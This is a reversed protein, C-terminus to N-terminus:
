HEFPFGQDNWKSFGGSLNYVNKFGLKKMLKLTKKGRAGHQCYVLYTKGPDYKLLKDQFDGAYFNIHIASTLHGDAFEKPTRVDLIVLDPSHKQIMAQAENLDISRLTPSQPACGAITTVIILYLIKKVM